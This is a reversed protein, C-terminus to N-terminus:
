LARVTGLEAVSERAARLGQVAAQARMYPDPDTALAQVEPSLTVNIVVNALGEAKTDASEVPFITPMKGTYAAHWYSEAAEM